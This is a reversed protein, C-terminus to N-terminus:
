GFVRRPLANLKGGFNALADERELSALAREHLAGWVAVREDDRLFPAAHILAGYLYIDSHSVLVWNSTNSDSLAPIKQRYTLEGTYSSDPTPIIQLEDGVISYHVPVGSATYTSAKLEVAKDPDIYTLRRTPDTSEIVLSVASDFDSPLDVFEAALAAEARIYKRRTKIRRNMEAEALTIFDPISSTLDTRNLWDAIASKLNAFTDLSM